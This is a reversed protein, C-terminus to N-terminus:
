KEQEQIVREIAEGMEAENGGGVGTTLLRIVGQRDILVATPIATVGYKIHNEDTDAVATGYPLNHAKKFRGIFSLEEDPKLEQGGGEGYFKTLGLVVLGRDKYKEHWEILHPFSRLCPGCWTAWFDLLVVRGRLDSLKVPSQEVWDAVKIEPAVEGQLRLQLQKRQLARLVYRREEPKVGSGAYAIAAEITKVAEPKRKGDVLVDALKETADTYLRASPTAVALKRVEELVAISADAPKKMQQYIDVLATSSLYVLRDSTPLKERAQLTKAAKYAEEAHAAARELQKKERYGKALANELTAHESDKRPEYRLYDALAAESEELRGREAARLAFLYRGYQPHDGAATKERELYTKLVELTREENASLSYLMALYYLDGASPNPRANLTAAHRAALEKQEQLTKEFLKADFPVKKATFEKFKRAAYGSADDHLVSAAREDVSAAAPPSQIVRGAQALADVAALALAGSLLLSATLKRM